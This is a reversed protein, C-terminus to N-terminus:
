TFYTRLMGLLIKELQEKLLKHDEKISPHLAVELSEIPESYRTKKDVTRERQVALAITM